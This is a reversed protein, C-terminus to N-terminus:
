IGVEGTRLDALWNRMCRWLYEDQNGPERLLVDRMIDAARLNMNTSEIHLDIAKQLEKEAWEKKTLTDQAEGYGLVSMARELMTKTTVLESQLEVNYRVKEKLRTITAEAERRDVALDNIHLEPYGTAVEWGTLKCAKLMLDREHEAEDIHQEAIEKYAFLEKFIVTEQLREIEAEAQKARELAIDMNEAYFGMADLQPLLDNLQNRVTKNEDELAAIREAVKMKQEMFREPSVPWNRISQQSINTLICVAEKAIGETMSDHLDILDSM